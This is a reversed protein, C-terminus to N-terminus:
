VLLEGEVTEINKQLVDLGTLGPYKEILQRATMQISELFGTDAMM